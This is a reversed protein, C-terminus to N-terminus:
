PVKYYSAWGRCAHMESACGVSQQWFGCGNTEICDQCTLSEGSPTSSIPLPTTSNSSPTRAGRGPRTGVIAIIVAHHWFSCSSSLTTDAHNSRDIAILTHTKYSPLQSPTALVKSDVFCCCFILKLFAVRQDCHFHTLFSDRKFASAARRKSRTVARRKISRRGATESGRFGFYNRDL